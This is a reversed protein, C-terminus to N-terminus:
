RRARVPGPHLWRISRGVLASDISHAEVGRGLGDLLTVTLGGGLHERFDALGEPV